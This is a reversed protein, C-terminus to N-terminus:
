ECLDNDELTEYAPLPPLPRAFFEREAELRAAELRAVLERAEVNGPALREIEALLIAATTSLEAMRRYAAFTRRARDVDAALWACGAEWRTVVLGLKKLAVGAHGETGLRGVLMNGSTKEFTPVAFCRGQSSKIGINGTNGINGTTQRVHAHAHPRPRARAHAYM